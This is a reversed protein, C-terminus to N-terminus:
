PSTSTVMASTSTTVSQPKTPLPPTIPREPSVQMYTLLYRAMDGFLPAASSEAWQVDRPHDIKVLMVFKPDNAPAYGAFSGITVDKQYGRGDTRAVQATGTKGAVWYGPVAAHKGEGVEVVSVLMGTILRSTRSSIPNGVIDPKTKVHTGDPKIIEDVVYPRLLKGGNAMAAYATLIQIPTVTIGQGFSATAPAVKGKNSLASINGKSEPSFEIGTKKGFGFSQVYSNFSDKGVLQQIFVTGTNLSMALVDTMTQLGHAKLDANKIHIDDVDAVGSDVYTTKPTIKGTDLGASLTVAKFISGPEYANLTIPNNLDSLDKVKGYNSPDFDPSSCSALLAGTNPDMVLLTGRDASHQAVARQILDCAKYQITRDITLIVDSGNTAQSFETSGFTLERGSADKEALLSGPTGALEKDFAGEIGYKGKLGDQADPAVFGILQGGIGPEPYLRATTQLMGIGDLQLDRVAQAQDASANQIVLEYPDDKRRTFRTVLDTDDVSLLQSLAHAAAVPDKMAKPVGYIQYVLRNTALPHLSGDSRDRVLIQGRTPLLKKALEHQDSAYLSYMGYQAIQLYGLRLILVAGMLAFGAVLVRFRLETQGAATRDLRRPRILM